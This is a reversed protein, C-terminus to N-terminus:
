EKGVRREEARGIQSRQRAEGRAQAQARMSLRIVTLATIEFAALAFWDQPDSVRWTLTPPVFFYNLCNVAILSTVSAEWFGWVVSIMVVILFYLSGSASLNLHLQLGIFTVMAVSALGALCGRLIGLPSRVANWYSTWSNAKAGANLGAALGTALESKGNM